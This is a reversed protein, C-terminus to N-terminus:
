ALVERYSLDERVAAAYAADTAPVGVTCGHALLSTDYDPGIAHTGEDGPRDVGGLVVRLGGESTGVVSVPAANGNIPCLYIRPFAPEGDGEGGVVVQDAGEDLPWTLLEM